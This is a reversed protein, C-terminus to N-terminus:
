ALISFTDSTINRKQGRATPFITFQQEPFIPWSICPSENPTTYVVISPGDPTPVLDFHGFSSSESTEIAYLIHNQFLRCTGCIVKKTPRAQPFTLVTLQVEVFLLYVEIAIAGPLQM